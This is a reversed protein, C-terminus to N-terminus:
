RPLLRSDMSWSIVLGIAQGMIEGTLAFQRPRPDNRDELALHLRPNAAVLAALILLATGLKATWGSAVALRGSGGIMTNSFIAAVGTWAHPRTDCIITTGIQAPCSRRASGVCLIHLQTAINRLAM